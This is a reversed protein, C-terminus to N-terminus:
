SGGLMPSKVLSPIVPIINVKFLAVKGFDDQRVVSYEAGVQIKVPM